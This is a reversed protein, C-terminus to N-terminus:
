NRGSQDPAPNWFPSTLRITQNLGSKSPKGAEGADGASRLVLTLEGMSKAGIITEAQYPDLELTALAQESFSKAEAGEDGDRDESPALAGLRDGISLVRVDRLITQSGQVLGSTRTLIVDVHDNPNIFGGSASDPTVSVSVARTGEALIASLYGDKGQAIKQERIPEGAFMDFRAIADAYATDADPVEEATIFDDRVADEPWKEWALSSPVLRDGISITQAAVLVPVRPELMIEPQVAPQPEAIVPQQQMALYAALGGAFLSLFLLVLRSKKFGMRGGFRSKNEQAVTYELDARWADIARRDRKRRDNEETIRKNRQDTTEFSIREHRRRERGQPAGPGGGSAAEATSRSVSGQFAGPFGGGHGSQTAESVDVENLDRAADDM